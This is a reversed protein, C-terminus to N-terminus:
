SQLPVITAAGHEKYIGNVPITTSCTNRVDSDPRIWGPNQEAFVLSRFPNPSDAQSTRFNEKDPRPQFHGRRIHTRDGITLVNRVRDSELCQLLLQRSSPEM